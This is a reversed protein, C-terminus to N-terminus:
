CWKRVIYEEEEVKCVSAGLREGGKLQSLITGIM